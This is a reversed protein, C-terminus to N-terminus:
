SPYRWFCSICAAWRFEISLFILCVFMELQFKQTSATHTHSPAIGEKEFLVFHFNHYTKSLKRTYSGFLNLSTVIKYTERGGEKLHHHRPEVGLNFITFSFFYFLIHLFNISLKLRLPPSLEIFTTLLFHLVSLADSCRAVISTFISDNWATDLVSWLDSGFTLTAGDGKEQVAHLHFWYAMWITKVHLIKYWGQRTGCPKKTGSQFNYYIPAVEIM